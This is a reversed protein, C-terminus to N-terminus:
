GAREESTRPRFADALAASFVAPETLWGDDGPCIRWHPGPGETRRASPIPVSTGATLAEM